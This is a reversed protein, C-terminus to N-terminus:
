VKATNSPARNMRERGIAAAVTETSLDREKAERVIHTVTDSINEIARRVRAPDFGAPNLEDCVCILGGANAVYDPIYLIGKEHMYQAERASPLQNNAAGCVISAGLTDIVARTLENGMACPAYIDAKAAHIDEPSAITMQPIAAQAATIRAESIDAGIINAGERALLLALGYGVTGLGRIAVTVDKLSEEGRVHKMAAKMSVLVSLPAWNGPLDGVGPRGVIRRSHQALLEIDRMDLGVDEGTYFRALLNLRAAYSVLQERKPRTESAIIVGKGGGYPLDALASKYSMARSLRLADRLADLESPYSVYRTGGNAPGRNTNHIAIFGTLDSKADRIYVVAEHDDFEPLQAVSEEAHLGIHRAISGFTIM